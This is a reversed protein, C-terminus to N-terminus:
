MLQAPEPRLARRHYRGEIGFAASITVMMVVM